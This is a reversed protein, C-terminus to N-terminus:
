LTKAKKILSQAESIEEFCAGLPMKKILTQLMELMEPACLILNLNEKGKVNLDHKAVHCVFNNENDLVDYYLNTESSLNWNKNESM